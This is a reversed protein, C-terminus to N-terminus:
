KSKNDKKHTPIAGEGKVFKVHKFIHNCIVQRLKTVEYEDEDNWQASLYIGDIKRKKEELSLGNDTNISDVSTIGSVVSSENDQTSRSINEITM